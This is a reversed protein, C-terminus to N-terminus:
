SWGPPPGTRPGWLSPAPCGGISSSSRWPDLDLVYHYRDRGNPAKWTPRFVIEYTSDAVHTLSPPGGYPEWPDMDVYPVFAIRDGIGYVTGEHRKFYFVGEDLFLKV